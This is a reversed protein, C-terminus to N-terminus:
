RRHGSLDAIAKPAHDRGHLRRDGDGGHAAAPRVGRKQVLVLDEISTNKLVEAMKQQVDLWVASAACEDSRACGASDPTCNTLSLPGEIAEVVDLLTIRSAPKALAFGGHVGRSSRLLRARVLSRLIKAMFSPPIGQAQAIDSRLAVAGDAMSAIHM